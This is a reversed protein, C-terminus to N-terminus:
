KSTDLRSDDVQLENKLKLHEVEFGLSIRKGGGERKKANASEKKIMTSFDALNQELKSSSAKFDKSDNM